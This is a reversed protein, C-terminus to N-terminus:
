AKPFPLFPSTLLEGLLILLFIIIIIKSKTKGGRCHYSLACPQHGHCQQVRLQLVVMDERRIM